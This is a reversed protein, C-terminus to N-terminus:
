CYLALLDRPFVAVKSNDLVGAAAAGIEGDVLGFFRGVGEIAGRLAALFANECLLVRAIGLFLQYFLAELDNIPMPFALGVFNGRASPVHVVIM